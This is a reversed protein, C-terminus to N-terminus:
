GSLKCVVSPAGANALRSKIAKFSSLASGGLVMDNVLPRLLELTSLDGIQGLVGIIFNTRDVAHHESAGFKSASTLKDRNQLSHELVAKVQQPYEKLLNLSFEGQYVASAGFASQMLFLADAAGLAAEAQLNLWLANIIDAPPRKVHQFVIERIICWAQAAAGEGGQWKPLDLGLKACGIIALLFVEIKEQDMMWSDFLVREAYRQFIDASSPSCVKVLGRLVFALDGFPEQARAALNMFSVQEPEGLEQFAEYYVGQFVEEFFMGVLRNAEEALPDRLDSNGFSKWIDTVMRAYESTPDIVGRMQKLAQGPDVPQPLMGYATMTELITSNLILDQSSTHEKVQDLLRRIRALREPPGSLVHTAFGELMQLAQMRLSRLRTNWSLAFLRDLDDFPPSDHKEYFECLAYLIFAAPGAPSGELRSRMATVWGKDAAVSTKGFMLSNRWSHFIESAPCQMDLKQLVLIAHLVRDFESRSKLGLRQGERDAAAHLSVGTLIFLEVARDLIGPDGLSKGILRALCTEYKSWQRFRALEPWGAYVKKGDEEATKLDVTVNALDAMADSILAHVDKVIVQKALEGLKGQLAKRANSVSCLAQLLARVREPSKQKTIVTEALPRHPPECLESVLTDFNEANRCLWDAYLHDQIQQHSFSFGAPGIKVLKSQRLEDALTLPAGANKLFREAEQEFESLSMEASLCRSLNAALHRCLAGAVTANNQPLCQVVYADYVETLTAGSTLKARCQGAVMLDHSTEFPELQSQDSFAPDGAHFRFVALKQNATLQQMLVTKCKISPPLNPDFQSAVVVRCNCLKHLAAIDKVLNPRLSGRCRDFGDMILLIPAGCLSAANQLEEIKGSFSPAVGKQLLPRFEGTYHMAELFLVLGNQTAVELAHHQLRVTKGIGSPGVLVFHEDLPLKEPGEPLAPPLGHSLLGALDRRYMALMLEAKRFEPETASELSVEELGLHQNAFREWLGANWSSEIHGTCIEEVAGPFGWIWCKFDGPTLSSGAAIEPCICVAANFQRYFNKRLPPPIQVERRQFAAMEDSVAFKASSTEIYPNEGPYRVEGGGHARIFWPGNLGGRVPGTIEKFDLLVAQHSTVVVCDIQRSKATFNVLFLADVGRTSLEAHLRRVANAEAGSVPRGVYIKITPKM